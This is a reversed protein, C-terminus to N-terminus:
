HSHDDNHGGAIAAKHHAIVDDAHHTHHSISNASFITGEIRDAVGGLADKAGHAADELASAVQGAADKVQSVGSDVAEGVEKEFQRAAKKVEDTLKMGTLKELDREVEKGVASLLAKGAVNAAIAVPIMVVGAGGTGAILAAVAAGIAVDELVDAVIEGVRVLTSEEQKKGGNQIEGNVVKVAAAANESAMGFQKTTPIIGQEAAEHMIKEVATSALSGALIAAQKGGPIFTSVLEGISEAIVTSGIEEIAEVDIKPAAKKLM